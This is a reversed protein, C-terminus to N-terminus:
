QGGFGAVPCRTRGPYPKPKINQSGLHTFRSGTYAWEEDNLDTPYRKKQKGKEEYNKRSAPTWM